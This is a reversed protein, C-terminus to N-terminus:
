PNIEELKKLLDAPESRTTHDVSIDADIIVGDKGILYRAPM